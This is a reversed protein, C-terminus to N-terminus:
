SVPDSVLTKALGDALVQFKFCIGHIIVILLKYSALRIFVSLFEAIECLRLSRLSIGTYYQQKLLYKYSIGRRRQSLMKKQILIKSTFILLDPM